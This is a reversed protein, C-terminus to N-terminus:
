SAAPGELVEMRVSSQQLLAERPLVRVRLRLAMPQLRHDSSAKEQVPRHKSAKM